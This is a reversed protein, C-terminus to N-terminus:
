KKTPLLSLLDQQVEQMSVNHAETRPRVNINVPPLQHQSLRFAERVLRKFRNRINAKGFKKSVTIGLKVKGKLSKSVHVVLFKGVRKDGSKINEQFDARTLLRMDKPLRFSLKKEQADNSTCISGDCQFDAEDIVNALSKKQSPQQQSPLLTELLQLAQQQLGKEHEFLELEKLCNLVETM